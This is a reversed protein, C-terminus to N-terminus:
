RKSWRAIREDCQDAPLFSGVSCVRKLRTAAEHGSLLGKAVLHDFIWLVGKVEVSQLGAVKRLRGDGTLLIAKLRKSLLLASADAPSIRHNNALIVTKVLNNASVPHIRLQRSAVFPTIKKRQRTEDMEALVLDTTHTPIGLSFWLDLLDAEAMDILVNADKVAVKM